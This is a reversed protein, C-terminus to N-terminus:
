AQARSAADRKFGRVQDVIGILEDPAPAATTTTTGGGCALLLLSLLVLAAVSRISGPRTSTPKRM